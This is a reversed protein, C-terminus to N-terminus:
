TQINLMRILLLAFPDAFPDSKPNLRRDGLPNYKEETYKTDETTFFDSAGFARHSV